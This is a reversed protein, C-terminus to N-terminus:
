KKAEDKMVDSDKFYRPPSAQRDDLSNVKAWVREYWGSGQWLVRGRRTMVLKPGQKPKGQPAKPEENTPQVKETM